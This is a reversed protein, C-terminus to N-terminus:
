FPIRLGDYALRVHSPMNEEYTNHDFEHSLHTLFARKPQLEEIASMSGEFNFHNPHPKHRVTDVVLTDLGQLHAKAEDPIFSVDTIYAFDNVRIGLCPISGHRVEFIRITLGCSELIEPADLLDFRPVFVGTPTEGFAYPFIRRIDQQYRPLTYIPVAREEMMCISRLDDMGMVHDAHTHTILVEQVSYIEERVLQLRMEPTCDILFNGKPGKLLCSSRTRHNKPNALFEPTYRVGLMPVGNSTGSGLIIAEGSAM